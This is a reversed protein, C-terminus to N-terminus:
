VATVARWEESLRRRYHTLLDKRRNWIVEAEALKTSRTALYPELSEPAPAGLNRRRRVFEGPDLAQALEDATLRSERGAVDRMVANLEDLALRGWTRGLSSLRTVLTSVVRHAQRFKLGDMRVLTEALETSTSFGDVVRRELVERDVSLTRVLKGLLRLARDLLDCQGHVIPQLQEGVDNVDGFPVNHLLLYTSTAAGLVKGVLARLHELVVPNRKQPMISSVQIFQPALKLAAVENTCWYLLDTLFRSLDTALVACCSSLEVLYDASAVADYTNEVLGEFGLLEAERARDVRFGTGALAAAGLTSLNTRRWAGDLRAADRALAAEVGALYHGFTTPQAQQNHTYAPMVTEREARALGLVAGRLLGLRGALEILRERAAMRFMATDLDNRSMGLHMSGVADDGAAKAVEAEIMFFLDEFAPDFRDPTIRQEMMPGIVRLLARGDEQSLHGEKLMTLVHAVNVELMYGALRERAFAFGPELVVEVYVPDRVAEEGSM